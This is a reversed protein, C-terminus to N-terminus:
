RGAGNASVPTVPVAPAGARAPTELQQRLALCEHEARDLVARAEATLCARLQRRLMGLALSINNLHNRLAHERHAAEVEPPGTGAPQVKAGGLREYLEGRLVTVEPPAEIGLRVANSRAAVIHIAAQVSPFVLSEQVRRAIVLM